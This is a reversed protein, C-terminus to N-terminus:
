NSKKCWLSYESAIQDPDDAWLQDVHLAGDSLKSKITVNATLKLDHSGYYFKDLSNPSPESHIIDLPDMGYSCHQWAEKSLLLVAESRLM